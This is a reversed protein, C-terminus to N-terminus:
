AATRSTIGAARSGKCVVRSKGDNEVIATVKKVVEDLTATLRNIQSVTATM